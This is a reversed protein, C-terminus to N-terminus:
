SATLTLSRRERVLRLLAALADVHADRGLAYWSRFDVACNLEAVVFGVGHPLLDIGVLDARIAAAAELALRTALPPPVAPETYGGLSLNTRWAAGVVCGGAVVVRLDRRVPAVLEQALVGHERFWARRALRALAEDLENRTQCLVVERGRSGFRPKLVVPLEPAPSPIGEAILWTRPHPVGAHRLVRATLLKDHAAILAGPRNLVDVGLEALRELETSGPEVGDLTELVELRGLAVDGAELIRLADRAPLVSAALGLSAAAGALEENTESTSHAIVAFRM